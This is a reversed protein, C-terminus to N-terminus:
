LKCFRIIGLEYYIIWIAYYSLIRNDFTWNGSFGLLLGFVIKL